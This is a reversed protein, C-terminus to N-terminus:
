KDLVGAEDRGLQLTGTIQAANKTLDSFYMEEVFTLDSAKTNRTFEPM